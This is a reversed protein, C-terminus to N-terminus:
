YDRLEAFLGAQEYDIVVVQHPEHNLHTHFSVPEVNPQRGIALFRDLQVPLV